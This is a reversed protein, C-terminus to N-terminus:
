GESSEAIKRLRLQWISRGEAKWQREFDTEPYFFDGPQWPIPEFFPVSAIVRQAHRFYHEHDTKFLFEGDTALLRHVAQLFDSQFLRRRHHRNKPWPDPFLFHIRSFRQLPLFWHVAYTTDLRLIRVNQRNERLARRATKRVRGLLREIGLFNREPFQAAMALLFRGEGSGLDLELPRDPTDPFIEELQARRFLDAPAYELVEYQDKAKVSM